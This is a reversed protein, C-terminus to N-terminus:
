QGRLLRRLLRLGQRLGLRPPPDDTRRAVLLTQDDAPPSQGRFRDVATLLGAGLGAPTEVPLGVLLDLLGREGLMRGDPSEAETLADSCAVLLDGPDLHVEFQVYDTDEVIGLPLNAVRQLGYTGTERRISPGRDGIDADLPRWRGLRTSYHFPRIHGANCIIVHGTPAYYTMFLVTAFRGEEAHRGFERNVERVLRTQDLHNIHRRVLQRLLRATEQASEGHGAVDAMVMRTVRGSGCISLLHVDGGASASHPLSDVWVDLGPSRTLYSDQHNGGIMEMCQLTPELTKLSESV